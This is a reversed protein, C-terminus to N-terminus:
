EYYSAGLEEIKFDPQLWEALIHRHCFDASKEYCLLVVNTYKLYKNLRNVLAERDVTDELYKLYQCRYEEESIAGVKISTVLYWPPMVEKLKVLYENPWWSPSSQSIQLFLWRDAELSKARAYYSTFIEYDEM